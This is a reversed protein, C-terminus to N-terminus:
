NRIVLCILVSLFLMKGIYKQVVWKTDRGLNDNTFTLIEHLRSMVVIGRGRSKAGPKVIWINRVGDINLQPFYPKM